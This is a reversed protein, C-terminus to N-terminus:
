RSLLMASHCGTRAALGAARPWQSLSSLSLLSLSRSLSRSRPDIPGVRFHRRVHCADHRDARARFGRWVVPAPTQGSEPLPLSHASPHAWPPSGSSPTLLPDFDATPHFLFFFGLNAAIKSLPLLPSHFAAPRPHPRRSSSKKSKQDRHCAVYNLSRDM